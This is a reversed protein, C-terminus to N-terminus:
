NEAPPLLEPRHLLGEVSQYRKVMDLPDADPDTIGLIFANEALEDAYMYFVGEVSDFLACERETAWPQPANM